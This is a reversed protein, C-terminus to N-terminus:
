ELQAIPLRCTDSDAIGGQRSCMIASVRRRQFHVPLPSSQNVRQDRGYDIVIRLNRRLLM